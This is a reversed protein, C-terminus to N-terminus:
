PSSQNSSLLNKRWLLELCIKEGKSMRVNRYKHDSKDDIKHKQCIKVPASGFADSICGVRVHFLAISISQLFSLVANFSSNYDDM